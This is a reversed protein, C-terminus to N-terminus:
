MKKINQIVKVYDHTNRPIILKKEQFMSFQLGIEFFQFLFLFVFFCFQFIKVDLKIASLLCPLIQLYPNSVRLPAFFTNNSTFCKWFTKM